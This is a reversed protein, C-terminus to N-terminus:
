DSVAQTSNKTTRWARTHCGTATHEGDVPQPLLVLFIQELLCRSAPSQKHVGRSDSCCHCEESAEKCGGRDYAWYIHSCLCPMSSRTYSCLVRQIWVLPLAADKWGKQHVEVVVGAPVHLSKLARKGKFIIMSPLM